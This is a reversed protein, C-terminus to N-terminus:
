YGSKFCHHRFSLKGPVDSDEEASGEDDSNGDAWDDMDTLMQFIFYTSAM